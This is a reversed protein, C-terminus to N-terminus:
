KSLKVKLMDPSSSVIEVGQPAKVSIKIEHSGEELDKLDISLKFDESTLKDLNDGKIVINIDQNLGSVLTLDKNLNLVEISSGKITMLKEIPQRSNLSVTIVEKSDLKEMGAPLKLEVKLSKKAMLQELDIAETNVYGLDLVRDDGKIFIKNPNVILNYDEPLAGNLITEIKVEKSRLISIDADVNNPEKEIGILDNGQDNLIRIQANARASKKMSDLNIYAVIDSVEKIYSRPGKLLVTEPRIKIDGLVYSPPLEGVTRVTIKKEATVFKDFTIMVEKPEYDVIEINSMENELSVKVPVKIQGETYGSLDVIAKIRRGSFRDFRDMDNKKGAVKVSVKSEQPSMLKLGAKDLSEVNSFELDINKYERIIEPNVENMVYAWLLIAILLAFIKLTLDSKMKETNM